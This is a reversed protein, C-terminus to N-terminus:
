PTCCCYNQTWILTLCCHIFTNALHNSQRRGALRAHTNARSGSTHRVVHVGPRPFGAQLYVIHVFLADIRRRTSWWEIGFPQGYVHVRVYTRVRRERERTRSAVATNSIGSCFSLKRQQLWGGFFHGQRTGIGFPQKHAHVRTRM